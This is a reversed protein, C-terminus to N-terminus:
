RLTSVAAECWRALALVVRQLEGLDGAGLAERWQALVEAEGTRAVKQVELGRDALVILRARGDAPDPVRSVYGRSELQGVLVHATQKTVGARFALETLRTGDDDLHAMLRAQAVTLDAHGAQTVRQLIRREAYRSAIAM